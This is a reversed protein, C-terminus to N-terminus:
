QNTDWTLLKVAAEKNFTPTLGRSSILQDLESNLIIGVERSCLQASAGSEFTRGPTLCSPSSATFARGYFAMGLTVKDPNIGNRWLLDMADEIETLNTHANLLPVVWKKPTEPKDWVGHLDYTMSPQRATLM